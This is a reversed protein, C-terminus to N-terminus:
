LNPGKTRLDEVTTMATRLDALWEEAHKGVLRVAWALADSRSRAVGADVLTDLTRREPQRLRTMVPVSLTTFLEETGGLRAGWAVKRGYRHEAQRAIEIRHERTEERWRAIRGSEAAATAAEDPFEEALAPLTGVLLIEERDVTIVPKETFWTDPLRGSFWATVDDSM